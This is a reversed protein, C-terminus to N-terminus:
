RGGMAATIDNGAMDAIYTRGDVTIRYTPERMGDRLEAQLSVRSAGYRGVLRSLVEPQVLRPDFSPSAPKEQRTQVRTPFRSSRVLRHMTGDGDPRDAYVGLSPTYGVATMSTQGGTTDMLAQRMGDTSTLDLIPVLVADPRFFVTQSEPQTTVTMYVQGGSYEVIQLEQVSDSGSVSAAVLCMGRVNSLDFDELLFTAQGVNAADGDVKTPLGDRYSWTSVKGSEELVAITANDERVTIQVLRSAGSAAVLRQLLPMTAGPAFFGSM